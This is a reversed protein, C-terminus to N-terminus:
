DLSSKFRSSSCLRLWRTALPHASGTVAAQTGALGLQWAVPNASLDPRWTGPPVPQVFVAPSPQSSEWSGPHVKRRSDAM